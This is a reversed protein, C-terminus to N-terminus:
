VLVHESPHVHKWFEGRVRHKLEIGNWVCVCVRDGLTCGFENRGEEEGAKSRRAWECPIPTGERELSTSMSHRPHHDQGSSGKGITKGVVWPDIGESSPELDGTSSTDISRVFGVTGRSSRGKRGDPLNNEMRNRESRFARVTGDRSPDRRPGNSERLSPAYKTTKTKPLRHLRPSFIRRLIAPVFRKWGMSISPPHSM